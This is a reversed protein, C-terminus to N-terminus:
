DHTAKAMVKKARRLAAMSADDDPVFYGVVIGMAGSRLPKGSINNYAATVSLQDGKALRYGGRDFFTVVPISLLSGDDATRADLTAVDSDIGVREFNQSWALKERTEVGRRVLLRSGDVKEDGVKGALACPVGNM